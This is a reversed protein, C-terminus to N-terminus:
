CRRIKNHNNGCVRNKANSAHKIYNSYLNYKKNNEKEYRRKNWSGEMRKINDKQWM